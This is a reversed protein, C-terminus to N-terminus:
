QVLSASSSHSRVAERGNRSITDLTARGEETTLLRTILAAMDARGCELYHLGPKFYTTAFSPESVVVCGNAMGYLVIRHWEFYGVEDRHINILIKANLCLQTLDSRSLMDPDGPVIPRNFAPCHVFGVHAALTEALEALAAGRRENLVSVVLFDYPRDAIREPYTLPEVYRYRGLDASLPAREQALTTGDLPWLPFFACNIGLARLGLASTPNMDLAGHRSKRISVLAQAFWTTQWQETNFTVCDQIQEETWTQGPGIKFFEHPAVVLPLVDSSGDDQPVVQYGARKLVVSLYDAIEGFFFNGNPACCISIPRDKPLIEGIPTANAAAHDLSSFFEVVKPGAFAQRGEAYGNLAYHILPHAGSRAVDKHSDLYYSASFLASPDRLEAPFSEIYDALLDDHNKIAGAYRRAYYAADFLGFHTISRRARDSLKGPGAPAGAESAADDASFLSTLRKIGRSLRKHLRRDLKRRLRDIEGRLTENEARLSANEMRLVHLEKKASRIEANQRADTVSM